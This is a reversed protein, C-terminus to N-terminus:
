TLSDLYERGMGSKFYKERQRAEVRTSFTETHLLEVPLRTRTYAVSGAQHQCYRRELNNTFGKYLTGDSCRLVYVTYM